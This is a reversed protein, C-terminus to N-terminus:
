SGLKFGLELNFFHRLVNNYYRIVECLSFFMLLNRRRRRYVFWFCIFILGISLFLTEAGTARGVAMSILAASEAQAPLALVALVTMCDDPDLSFIRITNDWGGVALFRARQRGQPVAGIECLGVLQDGRLSASMAGNSLEIARTAGLLTLLAGVSSPIRASITM